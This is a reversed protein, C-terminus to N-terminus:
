KKSAKNNLKNLDESISLLDNAMEEISESNQSRKLICNKFIELWDYEEDDIYFIKGKRYDIFDQFTALMIDNVLHEGNKILTDIELIEIFAFISDLIEADLLSWIGTDEREFQTRIELEASLSVQKNFQEGYLNLIEGFVNIVNERIKSKDLVNKKFNNIESNFENLYCDEELFSNLDAFNELKYIVMATVIDKLSYKNKDIDTMEMFLYICTLFDQNLYFWINDDKKQKSM